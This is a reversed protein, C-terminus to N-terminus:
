SSGLAVVSKILWEGEVRVWIIRYDLSDGMRDSGDIVVSCKATVTSEARDEDIEVEHRSIRVSAKDIEGWVSLFAGSMSDLDGPLRRGPIFEVSSNDALYTVLKRSRGVSDFTSVPGDKEVLEALNNLQKRIARADWDVQTYFYGVLLALVALVIIPIKFREFV